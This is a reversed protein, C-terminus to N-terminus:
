ESGAPKVDPPTARLALLPKRRVANTEGMLDCRALQQHGCEL